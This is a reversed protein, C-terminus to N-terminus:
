NEQEVLIVSIHGAVPLDATIKIPIRKEDNSIWIFINGKSRFIGTTKIFPQVKLCDIEKGIGNVQIKLKESKLINIKMETLQLDDFLQVSFSKGIEANTKYERQYYIASLIDQFENPLNQVDGLKESWKASEKPVGLKDTNGSFTSREFHANRKKLDFKVTHTRKFFGEHLKKESYVPMKRKRNWFSTIRDDVKFFRNIWPTGYARTEFIYCEEKEHQMLGVVHMSSYGVTMGLLSIEYKLKEGLGFADSYLNYNQLFIFLVFFYIRKM